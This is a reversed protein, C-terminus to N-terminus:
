KGAVAKKARAPRLVGTARAAREKSLWTKQAEVLDPLGHTKVAKPFEAAARKYASLAEEDRGSALLALGLNFAIPALSFSTLISRQSLATETDRLFAPFMGLEYHRWGRYALASVVQDVPAGPLQEIVRSYDALARDSDGKKSWGLGRNVLARAVQDVPAGPLQEIVRSYDALAKDSDGKKSWGLGRNVLANAVYGVPAGPLEIVRSYDALAKDSDGKKLWRHGRYLLAEAMSDVPAGPLEIARTFDAMAKDEDGKKSWAVGRNVLAPAMYEAPADSLEILSTWDAQALHLDGNNLRIVARNLFAQALQGAPVGALEILHTLDAQAEETKGTHHFSRARGILLERVLDARPSGIELAQTYLRASEEFNGLTAAVRASSLLRDGQAEALFYKEAQGLMLITAKQAKAFVDPTLRGDLPDPSDSGGLDLLTIPELEALDITELMERVQAIPNDLLRPLGVVLRACLKGMFSGASGIQVYVAAPKRLIEPVRPGVAGKTLPDSQRGCWYLRHDFRDCAALAEVIADDWGSYGLVIVGHRKLVPALVRANKAKLAAIDTDTAAQARRHISGHLYVLHITDTQDDLIEDSVGLEPTDSMLYLRNVSQLAIQLFPDFNTTLIVRCFAAEANFLPNRRSKYPQLGLLSALLFHAANLRPQDLRMLTRQFKRAEAPEGVAGIYRPDFAAKYADAYEEPLGTDPDLGLSLGRASNRAVFKNWYARTLPTPGGASGAKLAEFRQRNHGSEVWLPLSEEVLERVTPVLGYSFGSGLVLAFPASAREGHQVTEVIQDLAEEESLHQINREDAM